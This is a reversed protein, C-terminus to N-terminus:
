IACLKLLIYMAFSIGMSEYPIFSFRMANNSEDDEDNKTSTLAALTSMSTSLATSSSDNPAFTKTTPVISTTSVASPLSITKDITTINSTETSKATTTVEVTTPQSQITPAYHEDLWHQIQIGRTTLWMLNESSSELAQLMDPMQLFGKKLLQEMLDKLQTHMKESTVLKAMNKMASSIARGGFNGKNYLDYIEDMHSHIFQIATSLGLNGNRCIAMLVREREQSFYTVNISEITSNLLQNILHESQVCGLARILESRYAQDGSSQMRHWIANFVVDSAHRLGNCLIPERLDPDADTLRNEAIETVIFQTANLCHQDGVKCTWSVTIERAMRQMLTDQPQTQISMHKYIPGFLDLCFKHWLVYSDTDKLLIDLLAFNRDVAALPIYDVENSLYGLLHLAVQYDLRGSRANNLADDIFQARNIAHFITSNNLLAATIKLWLENDYNVRYYGTQQKNFVVWEDCTWNTKNTPNITHYTETLWESATTDEFNPHSKTAINIPIIWATTSSTEGNNKLLYREQHITLSCNQKELSVHVIPYGAQETWSKLLSSANFKLTDTPLSDFITTQMAESFQEPTAAQLANAHLYHVLAHRFAEHGLANYFMLLIAGGKDYAIDDFVSRIEDQTNVYHTMPRASVLSDIEFVNHTKDVSYLNGISLEPFVMQAATYEFFRAFGEKMWLFSWWAPSVYNGFFHHGIEHGVITAIKKKQKMPSTVSDYFFNEEKYTILGYNEMAGPAFDPIAVHYLKSLIYPTELFGELLRLTKFGAEIIFNAKSNIMNIPSAYAQQRPYNSLSTAKFDSVIIGLLYSQMSPSDTFTTIAMGQLISDRNDIPETNSLVSYTKGHIVRLGIPARIGPEDYCPFAHRADTSSFQTTALWRINGNDDRYSSRYFGANDERLIGTYKLELYYTGNLPQPSRITLFERVPDMTFSEDDDLLVIEWSDQVISWLKVHTINIQRYNLTISNSLSMQENITKLHITVKGDFRFRDNGITDDHIRTTIEINYRIPYTNNPLRYNLDSNQAACTEFIGIFLLFVTLYQVAHLM